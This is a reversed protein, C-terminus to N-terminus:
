QSDTGADGASDKDQEEKDAEAQAKLDRIFKEPDFETYHEPGAFNELAM